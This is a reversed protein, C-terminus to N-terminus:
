SQRARSSHIPQQTADVLLQHAAGRPIGPSTTPTTSPRYGSATARRSSAWTHPPLCSGHRRHADFLAADDFVHGCGHTRRCCHARDPGVWNMGCCNM